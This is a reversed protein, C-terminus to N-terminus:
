NLVKLLFLLGSNSIKQDSIKVFITIKELLSITKELLKKNDFKKLFTVKLVSIIYKYSNNITSFTYSYM